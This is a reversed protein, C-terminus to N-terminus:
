QIVEERASIVLPLLQQGIYRTYAPPIAQSLERMTMWDIDMAAMGDCLRLTGERRHEKGYRDLYMKGSTFKGYGRVKCGVVNVFDDVHRCPGPSWLFMNSSFWRHRRIPMGFMSGCLELADPLESGEVNEIIWPLGTAELRERVPQILKPAPQYDHASVKAIHRAASYSQCPPSAHITAFDHLHYGQWAEGALLTDLIQLADGQCFTHPNHPQPEIDVGIVEFGAQAYGTGAGGGGCFLDLLLPKHSINVIKACSHITTMHTRSKRPHDLGQISAVDCPYSKNSGTYWTNCSQESM